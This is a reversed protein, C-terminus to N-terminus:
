DPMVVWGPGPDCRTIQALQATDRIRALSPAATAHVPEGCLCTLLIATQPAFKALSFLAKTMENFSHRGPQSGVAQLRLQGLHVCRLLLENLLQGRCPRTGHPQHGVQPLGISVDQCPEGRHQRLSLFRFRKDRSPSQDLPHDNM